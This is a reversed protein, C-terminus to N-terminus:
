KKRGADSYWRYVFMEQFQTKKRKKQASVDEAIKSRGKSADVQVALLRLADHDRGNGVFFLADDRTEIFM